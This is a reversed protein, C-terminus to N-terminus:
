RGAEKVKAGCNPCYSIEIEIECCDGCWDEYDFMIVGENISVTEQVDEDCYLLARIAGECYRCM